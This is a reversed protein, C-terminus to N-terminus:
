TKDGLNLDYLLVEKVIEYQLDENMIIGWKDPIHFIHKIKPKANPYNIKIYDTNHIQLASCYDEFIYIEDAWEIFSKFKNDDYRNNIGLYKGGFMKAATPSRIQGYSCIFLLNIM